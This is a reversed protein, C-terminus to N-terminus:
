ATPLAAVVRPLLDQVPERHVLAALHDFPTPEANCIVIPRGTEHATPVLSAAPTVQLSTGVVLVLDSRDVLTWAQEVATVDMAQGFSITAAKLIGGCDPCSPDAEGADIRDLVDRTATACGCGDPVEGQPAIGICVTRHASGHLEVVDTSGAAQHLGDINQTVVGGVHGAHQLEAIAVHGPNPRAEADLFERRMAWGAMRVDAEEVHRAFTMERPDYRTWLGTPSRFDPLGSATSVGAGTLVVARRASSVLGVLDDIEPQARHGLTSHNASPDAPAPDTPAPDTQASDTPDPSSAM